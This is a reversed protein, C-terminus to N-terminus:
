SSEVEPIVGDRVIPRGALSIYLAYAALALIVSVFLGATMRYWDPSFHACDILLSPVFFAMVSLLGFRNLLFFIAVWYVMFVLWVVYLAPPSTEIAVLGAVILVLYVVLVAYAIM